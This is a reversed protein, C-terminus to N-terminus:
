KAAVSATRGEQTQDFLRAKTVHEHGDPTVVLAPVAHMFYAVSIATNQGTAPDPKYDANRALAYWLGPLQIHTVMEHIVGAGAWGKYITRWDRYGGMYGDLTEDAKLQFRFQAAHLALEKAFMPPTPEARMRIEAPGATELVGNRTRATVVSQFRRDPDIRFTYDRAVEGVADKVIPDKALYVGFDVHEDNMPDRGNGSIVIVITYVGDRMGDNSYKSTSGFPGRFSQWCGVTRYFQNDIGKEGTPSVFGTSEDGDLNFGYSISGSVGVLGPDPVSTPNRYVDTRGPGRLGYFKTRERNEPDLLRKLEEGEYGAEHLLRAWDNEPNTGNPCDTGPQNPEKAGYYSANGWWDIVFSRSWPEAHVPPSLLLAGILLSGFRATSARLISGTVVRHGRM